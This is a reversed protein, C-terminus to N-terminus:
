SVLELEAWKWVDLCARLSKTGKDDSVEMAVREKAKQARQVVEEQFEPVQKQQEVQWQGVVSFVEGVVSEVRETLAEAFAKGLFFADLVAKSENDDPKPEPRTGGGGGSSRAAFRPLRRLSSPSVCRPASSPFPSAASPRSPRLLHRWSETSILPTECCTLTPHEVGGPPWRSIRPRPYKNCMSLRLWKGLVLILLTVIAMNEWSGSKGDLDHHAACTDPQLLLPPSAIEGDLDPHAPYTDIELLLPPATLAQCSTTFDSVAHDYDNYKKYVSNKVGFVQETCEHWTMYIELKKGKFVVYCHVM